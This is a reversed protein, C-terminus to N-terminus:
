RGPISFRYRVDDVVDIFTQADSGRLGRAMDTAKRDSFIAELLSVRESQPVAGSALCLLLVLSPEAPAPLNCGSPISNSPKTETPSQVSRSGVNPPKLPVM